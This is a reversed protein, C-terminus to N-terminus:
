MNTVALDSFRLYPGHYKLLRLLYERVVDQITSLMAWMDPANLQTIGSHVLTNRLKVIAGLSPAMGVAGFMATLMTEFKAPPGPNAPTAGINRFRHKIFPFGHQPAFTHKLQELLIFLTLLHVETPLGSKQSLVYYRFAINLQRVVHLQRYSPFTTELFQRVVAANQIELTPRFYQLQGVFSRQEAFPEVEPYEYGFCVVESVTTFSLLAAVDNALVQAVAFQQPDM